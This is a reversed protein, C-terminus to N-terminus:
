EAAGEPNNDEWFPVTINVAEENSIFEWVGDTAIIL